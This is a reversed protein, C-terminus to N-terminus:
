IVEMLDIVRRALNYQRNKTFYIVLRQALELPNDELSEDLKENEDQTGNIKVGPDDKINSYRWKVVDYEYVQESDAHEWDWQRVETSEEIEGCGWLIDIEKGYLESPGKANKGDNTYWPGPIKDSM